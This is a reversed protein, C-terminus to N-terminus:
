IKGRGFLFQENPAGFRGTFSSGNSRKYICQYQPNSGFYFSLCWVLFIIRSVWRYGLLHLDWSKGKLRSFWRKSIPGKPERTWSADKSAKVEGLSLGMGFVEFREFNCGYLCRTYTTWSADKFLFWLLSVIEITFLTWRMRWIQIHIVWGFNKM